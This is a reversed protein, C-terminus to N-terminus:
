KQRREDTDPSDTDPNAAISLLTSLKSRLTSIEADFSHITKEYKLKEQAKRIFLEDLRDNIDKAQTIIRNIRM